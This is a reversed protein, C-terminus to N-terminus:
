FGTTRGDISLAEDIRSMCEDRWSREWRRPYEELKPLAAKAANMRRRMAPVLRVAVALVWWPPPAAPNHKGGLEAEQTYVEGGFARQRITQLPLGFEAFTHAFASEYVPLLVTAGMPTMPGAFHSTDKMWRGPPIDLEPAVPLGTIPRAQLLYLEGDAIAWEMDQPAGRERAIVRALEALRRAVSEDITGSDVISEVDDGRCVWRDGDVEGAMLRDGLGRVAEIVVEDDGTVPNKSFMVGAAHAAVLRQVLVGLPAQDCDAHARYATAQENTGSERVREAAAVVDDLTDVGLVTQYQGAFSAEALDEAVGSSRVAYPGPGLRELAQRLAEASCSGGVPIVFGDPINHGSQRLAALTAAKHGCSRADVAADLPLPQRDRPKGETTMAQSM